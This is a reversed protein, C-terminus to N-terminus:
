PVKQPSGVNGLSIFRTPIKSNHGTTFPEREFFVNEGIAFIYRCQAKSTFKRMMESGFSWFAPSAVTSNQCIGEPWEVTFLLDIIQGDVLNEVRHLDDM